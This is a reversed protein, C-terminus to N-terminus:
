SKWRGRLAEKMIKGTQNRPLDPVIEVYKPIKYDALHQKCFARIEEETTSEGAHLILYAKVAEGFVDDPVGIVAVESVAPHRQLANEVEISYINEGGRNIMDKLRDMVYLYGKEDLKGVDGTHLWGEVIVKETEEPNNWYGPVIKSGRLLIEGAVGTPCPKGQKDAIRVEEIPVIRGVSALNQAMEQDTLVFDVTHTETMGFTDIFQVGPMKKRITQFQEKSKPAGGVVCARFSHLDYTEFRPHNVLLWYITPVHVMITVREREM